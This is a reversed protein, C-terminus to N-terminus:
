LRVEGKARAEKFWRITGVIGDHLDIKPEWGLSRLRSIDLVKRPTGDPKTTDWEILGKYGVLFAIKSALEKISLEEGSGVNLHLSSDYDETAVLVAKAFDEVHLFERLSSGTGWLTVSTYGEELAEVFRRVLAPLVHSTNLNFNDNPGYLNTPMLSIWEAGHEKRYANILELGAIKATAYASNTSELPGSMLYEERIPQPSERPYACSSGLFVFKRVGYVHSASMLTNQIQINDLFFEVPSINNIGIGGVKAAADIVINPREKKIFEHTAKSDLLNLVKRHVKVVEYGKNEFVKTIASGALGTSGAVLVKM